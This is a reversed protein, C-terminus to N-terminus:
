QNKADVLAVCNGSARVAFVRYLIITVLTGSFLNRLLSVQVVEDIFAAECFLESRSPRPGRLAEVNRVKRM